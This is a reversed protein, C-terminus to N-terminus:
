GRMKKVGIKKTKGEKREVNGLDLNRDPGRRPEIAVWAVRIQNIRILFAMGLLRVSDTEITLRRRKKCM